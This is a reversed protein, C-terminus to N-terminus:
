YPVMKDPRSGNALNTVANYSYSVVTPPAQIWAMAVINKSGASSCASLTVPTGTTTVTAVSYHVPGANLNTSVEVQETANTWIWNGVLTTHDVAAIGAGGSQVTLTTSIITTSGTTANSNESNPTVSDEGTVTFICIAVGGSTGNTTFAVDALSSDPVNAAWVSVRPMGSGTSKIISSAAIGGISLSNIESSLGIAPLFVLAVVIRDSASSGISQSSFTVTSGSYSQNINTSIFTATVAM